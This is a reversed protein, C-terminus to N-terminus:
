ISCAGMTFVLCLSVNSSQILGKKPNHNHKLETKRELKPEPKPKRKHKPWNKYSCSLTAHEKYTKM